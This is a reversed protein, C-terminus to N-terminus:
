WSRLSSNYVDKRKVYKGKPKERLRMKSEEYKQQYLNSLEPDDTALLEAVLGYVLTTNAVIDPLVLEDDLDTIETPTARYLVKVTGVYDTRIYFDNFGEIYAVDIRSVPYEEISVISYFDTPLTVKSYEGFTPSTSWNTFTTSKYYPSVEIMENQLSNIIGISRAEYEATSNTDISGDALREDAKDMAKDFISRATVM